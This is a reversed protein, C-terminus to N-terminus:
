SRGSDGGGDGKDTQGKGTDANARPDAASDAPINAEDTDTMDPDYALDGDPPAGGPQDVRRAEDKSDKDPDM